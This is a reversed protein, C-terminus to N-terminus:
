LGSQRLPVHHTSMLFFSFFNKPEDTSCLTLKRLRHCKIASGYREANLMAKYAGCLHMCWTCANLVHLHAASGKDAEERKGEKDRREEKDTKTITAENEKDRQM